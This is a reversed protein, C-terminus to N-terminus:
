CSGSSGGPCSVGTCPWPRWRCPTSWRRTTRASCSPWAPRTRSAPCRACRTLSAAPAPRRGASGARRSRHDGPRQRARRRQARSGAAPHARASTERLALLREQVPREVHVQWRKDRFYRKIEGTICPQAYAALNRGVGPDFNNIAKLLGVYGVQVLDETPEPSRRYRNACARVLGRYRSVLVDCAGERRPDDPPRSRIEHLLEEDDLQELESAAADAPRGMTRPPNAAAAEGAALIEM